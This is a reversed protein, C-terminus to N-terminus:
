KKRQQKRGVTIFEAEEQPEESPRVPPSNGFRREILENMFAKMDMKNNRMNDEVFGAIEAPTRLEMLLISCMNIDYCTELPKLKALCWTKTDLPKNAVNPPSAVAPKTAVPQKLATASTVATPSVVTPKVLPRASEAARLTEAFSKPASSKPLSSRRSAELEAEERMIDSLPRSKTVPKAWGVAPSTAPVLELPSVLTKPTPVPSTVPRVPAFSTQSFLNSDIELPAVPSTALKKWGIETPAPNKNINLQSFSQLPSSPPQQGPGKSNFQKLFLLQDEGLGSTDLQPDVKKKITEPESVSPGTWPLGLKAFISATPATPAIPIPSVTSSNEFPINSLSSKSSQSPSVVSDELEFPCIGGSKTKWVSLPEFLIDQERRLPLTEPFYNRTYWHLMKKTPFPGQIQGAPDRYYWKTELAVAPVSPLIEKKLDFSSAESFSSPPPLRDHGPLSSSFVDEELSRGGLADGGMSFNGKEDFTGLSGEAQPMNWLIDEDEGDQEPAHSDKARNNLSSPGEFSHSPDRDNGGSRGGGRGRHAGRASGGRSSGHSKKIGSGFHGSSTINEEEPSFPELSVPPLLEEMWIEAFESAGRFSAPLQLDPRFRALINTKM